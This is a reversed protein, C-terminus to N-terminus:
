KTRAPTSIKKVIEGKVLKYKRHHEHHHKVCLWQVDFPKSYDEHHAEVESIGCIMCPGRTLKGSRIARRTKAGILNRKRYKLYANRTHEKYQGPHEIRSKKCAENHKKRNDGKSLYNRCYISHRERAGPKNM